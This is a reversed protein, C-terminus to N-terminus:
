DIANTKQRWAAVEYKLDTEVLARRDLLQEIWFDPFQKVYM